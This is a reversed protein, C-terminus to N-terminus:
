LRSCIGVMGQSDTPCTASATGGGQTFTPSRAKFCYASVLTEGSECSLECGDAPCSETRLVRFPADSLAPVGGLSAAGPEGKAGTPGAEGPAGAPGPPGAEGRPGPEGKTGAEGKPGTEGRPGPEGKPGAEGAPGSAGPIGPAGSPGPPGQLGAVGQPGAPGAEGKPGPQGGPGCLAIVAERQDEEAKLTAICNVPMYPLRFSFRGRKDAIVSIDEDLVVVIGGKRVSGSLRLDGAEIRAEYVTIPQAPVQLRRVKRPKAPRPRAPRVKPPGAQAPAAQAAPSVEPATQAGAPGAGLIALLGLLIVVARDLRM